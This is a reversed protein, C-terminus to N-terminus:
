IFTLSHGQDAHQACDVNQGLASGHRNRKYSIALSICSMRVSSLLWFPNWTLPLVSSTSSMNSDIQVNSSVKSNIGVFGSRRISRVAEDDGQNPEERLKTSFNGSIIGTRQM